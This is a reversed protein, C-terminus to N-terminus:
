PLLGAPLIAGEVSLIAASVRNAYELCDRLPRGLTLGAIVAGVHADGAGITDVIREPDPAPPVTYFSGDAADLCACGNKGLTIIVTGGTRANLARAASAVTNEGSLAYAEQENLHLMPHLRFIREQRSPDVNIGRPGPAYCVTQERHKELYRLINEGTPEEIELGCIYVMGFPSGSYPEMWSEEFTYEVGHYSLFTREGGKEVFCYCCGNDRDPVRVAVPVGREELMLAVYNGYLGTGVPNMHLYPAGMLRVINSVNFACGGLSMTQSSPHLDEETKPLHDINIIVDLCTSGLILAREM